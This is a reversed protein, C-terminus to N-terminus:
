DKRKNNRIQRNAINKYYLNKDNLMKKEASDILGELDLHRTKAVDFGIAIHYGKEEIKQIIEHILERIKDESQDITFAVFEDGGIRFLKGFRGFCKRMCDATGRILEDGAAHGSTDNATKLGNIDVTVYVFNEDLPATMLRAKEEEPCDAGIAREDGNLALRSTKLLLDTIGGLASVVVVVPKKEAEVIRKLNQISEVSGVSTGGFKMVKM